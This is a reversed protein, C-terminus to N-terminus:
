GEPDGIDIDDEDKEEEDPGLEVGVEDDSAEVDLDAEFRIPPGDDDEGEGPVEDPLIDDEPGDERISPEYLGANMDDDEGFEEGAAVTNNRKKSRKKKTKRPSETEGGISTPVEDGSESMEDGSEGDLYVTRNPKNGLLGLVSLILEAERDPSPRYDMAGLCVYPILDRVEMKIKNGESSIMYPERGSPWVFSYGQEMCRKGLSLVSPTDELVHAKAPETFTDFDLDVM